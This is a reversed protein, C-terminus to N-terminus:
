KYKILLDSKDNMSRAKMIADKMWCSVFVGIFVSHQRISKFLYNWRYLRISM